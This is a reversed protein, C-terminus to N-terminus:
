IYNHSNTFHYISYFYGIFTSPFFIRSIIENIYSYIKKGGNIKKELLIIRMIITMKKMKTMMTDVEIDHTYNYVYIDEWCSYVIHKILSIIKLNEEYNQLELSDM